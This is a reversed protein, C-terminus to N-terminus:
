LLRGGLINFVVKIIEKTEGGITGIEGTILPNFVFIRLFLDFALLVVLFVAVVLFVIGTNKIVSGFSPWTVKKLESWIERFFKGVRGSEKNKRKKVSKVENKEAM